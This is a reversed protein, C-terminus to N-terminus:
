NNSDSSLEYAGGYWVREVVLEALSADYKPAVGNVIM